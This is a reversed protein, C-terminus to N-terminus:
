LIKVQLLGRAKTETDTQFRFKLEFVNAADSYGSITAKLRLMDGEYVPGSFNIKQSLIAVNKIPLVEGVLFSLYGSLVNGYVVKDKFGHSKAFESDTHLPNQDRFLNEFGAVVDNTVQFDAEFVQGVSIAM